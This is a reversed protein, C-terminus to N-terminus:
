TSELKYKIAKYANKSQSLQKEYIIWYPMGLM